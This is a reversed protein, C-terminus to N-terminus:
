AIVPPSPPSPRRAAWSSASRPAVRTSKADRPPLTAHVPAGTCISLACAEINATTAHSLESTASTRASLAVLANPLMRCAAPTSRSLIKRAIVEASRHKASSGFAKPADWM